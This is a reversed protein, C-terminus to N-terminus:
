TGTAHAQFSQGTRRWGAPVGTDLAQKEADDATIFYHRLGDHYFEDVRVVVAPPPAGAFMLAGATISRVRTPGLSPISEKSSATDLSVTAIVGQLPLGATMEDLSVLPAIQLQRA